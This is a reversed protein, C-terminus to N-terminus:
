HPAVIPASDACTISSSIGGGDGGARRWRTYAFPALAQNRTIDRRYRQTEEPSTAHLVVHRLSPCRPPTQLPLISYLRQHLEFICQLLNAPRRSAVTLLSVRRRLVIQHHRCHLDALSPSSSFVRAQGGVRGWPRPNKVPRFKGAWAQARSGCPDGSGHNERTIFGVRVITCCADRCDADHTM